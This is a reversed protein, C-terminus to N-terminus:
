IIAVVLVALRSDLLIAILMGAAAVPVMYGFQAGFEPWQTVNIAIIAKGVAMVVLVIMGLLYLHGAHEYIERNQQYLYVLVTTTLMGVLLFIGLVSLLPPSKM